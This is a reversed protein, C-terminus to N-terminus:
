GPILHFIRMNPFLPRLSATAVSGRERVSAGSPGSLAEPFLKQHWFCLAALLRPVKKRRLSGCSKRVFAADAQCTKSRASKCPGQPPAARRFVFPQSVRSCGFGALRLRSLEQTLSLRPFPWFSTEMLMKFYCKHDRCVFNPDRESTLYRVPPRLFAFLPPVARRVIAAGAGTHPSASWHLFLAAAGDRGPRFM